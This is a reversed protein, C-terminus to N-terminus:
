RRALLEAAATIRAHGNGDNRDGSARSTDSAIARCQAIRRGDVISSSSVSTAQCHVLASVVYRRPPASTTFGGDGATIWTLRTIARVLRRSVELVSEFLRNLYDLEDAEDGQITVSEIEKDVRM